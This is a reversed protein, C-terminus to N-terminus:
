TGHCLGWGHWQIQTVQKASCVGQEDLDIPTTPCSSPTFTSLVQTPCAMGNPKSSRGARAKGLVTGHVQRAGGWGKRIKLLGKKFAVPQETGTYSNRPTSSFVPTGPFWM